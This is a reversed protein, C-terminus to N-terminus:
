ARKWFKSQEPNQSLILEARNFIYDIPARPAFTAIHLSKNENIVKVSICGNDLKIIDLIM